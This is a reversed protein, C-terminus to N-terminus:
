ICRSGICGWLKMWRLLTLTDSNAQRGPRTFLFFPGKLVLRGLTYQSLGRRSHVRRCKHIPGRRYMASGARIWKWGHVRLALVAPQGQRHNQCVLWLEGKPGLLCFFFFFRLLPDSTRPLPLIIIRKRYWTADRHRHRPVVVHPRALRSSVCYWPFTGLIHYKCLTQVRRGAQDLIAFSISVDQHHFPEM